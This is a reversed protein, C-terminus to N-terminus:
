VQSRDHQAKEEMKENFKTLLGDALQIGLALGRELLKTEELVKAVAYVATGAMLAKVVSFM